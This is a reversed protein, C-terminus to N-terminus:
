KISLTHDSGTYDCLLTQETTEKNDFSYTFNLNDIGSVSTEITDARAVFVSNPNSCFLATFNGQLIFVSILSFLCVAFIFNLNKFINKKM